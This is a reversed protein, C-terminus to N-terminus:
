EMIRVLQADVDKGIDGHLVCSILVLIHVFKMGKWSLFISGLGPSAHADCSLGMKLVFILDIVIHGDDYEGYVM